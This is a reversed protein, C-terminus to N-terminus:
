LETSNGQVILQLCQGSGYLFKFVQSTCLIKESAFATEDNDNYPLVLQLELAPGTSAM